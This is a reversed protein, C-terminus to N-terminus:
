CSRCAAGKYRYYELKIWGKAKVIWLEDWVVGCGQHSHLVGGGQPLEVWIGVHLPQAQRIMKVLDGGRPTDVSEFESWAPDNAITKVQRILSACDAGIDRLDIGYHDRMVSRILGGCDYADPGAAGKEWHKGIYNNVWHMM